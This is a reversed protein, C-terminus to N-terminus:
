KRIKMPWNEVKQKNLKYRFPRVQLLHLKKVKGRPFNHPVSFFIILKEKKQLAIFITSLRLWNTYDKLINRYSQRVKM